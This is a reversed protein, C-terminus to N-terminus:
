GVLKWKGDGTRKLAPDSVRVHEALFDIFARVRAPLPATHGVYVAHIDERDGPNYGQLVPVLRGSEIDPGIHFLALRALGVGGLCLRRAAEGDSARAVPPPLAEEAHDGRRFPWGRISRPFTWGIGRHDALDAPIKPMSCRALYDPAGVVVMRSTGLKRAVLRSARLPGVRIAVDAREQMLDIVTDTLVLDLTVDPHQALFRPILPMVHLMGFPINCNVTLRGRPAAGSAAEREAEEMEALIRLSREYFAQGEETLTLRRTTRNVLRAGLRTELRSILKSVGSPTLRLKRAAPTFGGLDVVRVFVEMEASRNTDFRAM